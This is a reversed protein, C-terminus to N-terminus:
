GRRSGIRAGDLVGIPAVLRPAVRAVLPRAGPSVGVDAEEDDDRNEDREADHERERRPALGLAEESDLARVAISRGEGARAARSLRARVSERHVPRPLRSPPMALRTSMSEASM